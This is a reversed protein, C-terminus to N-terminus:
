AKESGSDQYKKFKESALTLAGEEEHGSRRVTKRLV